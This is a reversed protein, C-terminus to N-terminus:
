PKAGLDVMNIKHTAWREVSLNVILLWNYALWCHKAVLSAADSHNPLLLLWIGGICSIAGAVLRTASCIFHHRAIAALTGNQHSRELAQQERDADHFSWSALVMVVIGSVALTWELLTIMM